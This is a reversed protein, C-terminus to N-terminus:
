VAALERVSGARLDEELRDLLVLASGNPKGRGQEWLRYTDVIVGLRECFIPQSEGFQKRLHKIRKPPWVM